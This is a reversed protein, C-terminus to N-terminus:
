ELESMIENVWKGLESCESESLVFKWFGSLPKEDVVEKVVVSHRM